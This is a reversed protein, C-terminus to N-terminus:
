PWGVLGRQQLAAGAQGPMADRHQVAGTIAAV